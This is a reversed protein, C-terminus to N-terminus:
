INEVGGHRSIERREICEPGELGRAAVQAEGLGGALQVDRGRGDAM